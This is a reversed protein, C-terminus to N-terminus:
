SSILEDKKMKCIKCKRLARNNSIMERDVNYPLNEMYITRREFDAVQGDIIINGLMPYLRFNRSM